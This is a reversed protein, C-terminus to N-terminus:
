LLKEILRDAIRASGTSRLSKMAEERERAKAAQPPQRRSPKQVQPKSAVKEKAAPVAKKSKLYKAALHLVRLDRYDSISAVEENTYGLEGTAYTRIDDAIAKFKNPDRYEPIVEALKAANEALFAQAMEQQRQTQMHELYAMQAQYTQVKHQWQERAARAKMHGIPDQEPDPLKPEQSVLEQQLFPLWQSLNQEHQAYTQAKAQVERSKAAVEQTKRTYDAQRLFGKKLEGVTTVTGDDLKVKRADSKVPDDSQDDSEEDPDEEDGDPEDGEPEDGDPEDGDDASAEEAEANDEDPDGLLHSIQEDADSVSLSRADDSGGSPPNTADEM